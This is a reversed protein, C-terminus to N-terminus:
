NVFRYKILAWLYSIGHSMRIKKGEGVTRPHYSIPVEYIHVGRRRVKATVEPCFEFGDSKLTITKLFGTEFMKYCTAVDHIHQGYLITALWAVVRNFIYNTWAMNRPKKGVWFRNGYIVVAERRTKALKLMKVLDQPDYELDADQVVTYRGTVARFGERLAAGKGHNRPQYIVRVHRMDEYSKLIDRTGDVSGDDVVIIELKLPIKQLRRIVEAITEKENYVPVVVSLDVM